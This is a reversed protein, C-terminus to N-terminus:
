RGADFGPREFAMAQPFERLLLEHAKKLQAVLPLADDVVDPVLEFVAKLVSGHKDLRKELQAVQQTLKNFARILDNAKEQDFVPQM